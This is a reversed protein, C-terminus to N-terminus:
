TKKKAAQVKKVPPSSQLARADEQLLTDRIRSLTPAARVTRVIEPRKLIRALRGLIPLHLRDYKLGLLFFLFTPKGDPAGFEIGHHSRGVVIFPRTIKGANRQRTHLFAVGGEMATSALAEREVVAGVFWPKDRLWGNAFARAALLEIAGVKDKAGLDGVISREELLDSLPLGVGDVTDELADDEFATGGMQDLLWADIVERKFRWQDGIRAGPVTGGAALKLITRENTQVYDALERVTMLREEPEPKDSKKPTM